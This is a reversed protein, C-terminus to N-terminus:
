SVGTDQFLQKIRDIPIHTASQIFTLEMGLKFLNIAVDETGKTMGQARGRLLGQQERELFSMEYPMFEKMAKRNSNTNM